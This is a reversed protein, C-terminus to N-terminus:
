VKKQALFVNIENEIRNFHKEAEQNRTNISYARDGNADIYDAILEQKKYSQILKETESKTLLHQLNKLKARANRVCLCFIVESLPISLENCCMLINLFVYFNITNTM